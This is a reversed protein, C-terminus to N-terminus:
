LIMGGLRTPFTAVTSKLTYGTRAKSGPGLDCASKITARYSFSCHVVHDPTTLHFNRDVLEWIENKSSDRESEGTGEGPGYQSNRPQLQTTPTLQGTWLSAVCGVDVEVAFRKITSLLVPDSSLHQSHDNDYLTM